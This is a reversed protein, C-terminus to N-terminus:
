GNLRSSESNYAKSVAYITSWEIHSANLKFPSIIKRVAEMIVEPDRGGTSYRQALAPSVQVYVRILKRERPIIM